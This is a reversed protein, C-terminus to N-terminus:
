DRLIGLREQIVELIEETIEERDREGGVIVAGSRFWGALREYTKWVRMLKKEEEFLELAARSRRMREVCVRPPVKLIITLDPLPFDANWRLLDQVPVDLSGFAVTSFVYRDSIVVVGRELHPIIVNRLHEERDAVFLRQLTRPDVRRQFQLVERILSGVVGDTPEKTTLVRVGRKALAAAVREVQTSQGSGDLGELVIFKGRWHGKKV